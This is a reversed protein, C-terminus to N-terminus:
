QPVNTVTWTGDSNKSATFGTLSLRRGSCIGGFCGQGSRVEFRDTGVNIGPITVTCYEGESLRLGQRCPGGTTPPPPATTTTPPPTTTTPPPPATTTTTPASRRETWDVNVDCVLSNLGTLLSGTINFSRTVGKSWLGSPLSDIGVLGGDHGRNGFGEVRISTFNVDRTATLRGSITVNMVLSTPSDKSGMCTTIEGILPKGDDNDSTPPATTTTTTPPPPLEGGTAVIGVLRATEWRDRGAIRTLDHQAFRALKADPVASTGGVVYGGQKTASNLRSVQSPPFAAGRPGALVICESDLVSALTVAAYIDSQAAADSAVVVPIEGVCDGDDAEPPTRVEADHAAASVPFALAALLVAVGCILARAFGFGGAGRSRCPRGLVFDAANVPPPARM